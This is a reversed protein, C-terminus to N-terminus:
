LPRIPMSKWHSWEKVVKVHMTFVSVIINLFRQTWLIPQVAGDGITWLRRKGNFCCPLSGNGCSVWILSDTVYGMIDRSLAATYGWLIAPKTGFHFIWSIPGWSFHRTPLDQQFGAVIFPPHSVDQCLGKWTYRDVPQNKSINCLMDYYIM